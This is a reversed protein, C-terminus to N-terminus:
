GHVRLHQVEPGLQPSIAMRTAVGPALADLTHDSDRGTDRGTGSRHVRARGWGRQALHLTPVRRPLRLVEAPWAGAEDQAPLFLSGEVSGPEKRQELLQTSMLCILLLFPGFKIICMLM